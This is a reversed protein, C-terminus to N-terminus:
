ITQLIKNYSSNQGFKKITGDKLKVLNIYGNPVAKKYDINKEINVIVMKYGTLYVCSKNTCKDNDISSNCIPCYLIRNRNYKPNLVMIYHAELSFLSINKNMRKKHEIVSFKFNDIGQKDIQIEDKPINPHKYNLIATLHQKYRREFNSTCGIYFKGNVLNEIKYIGAGDPNKCEFIM